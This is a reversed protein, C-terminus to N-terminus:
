RPTAREMMAALRERYRWRRRAIEIRTITHVVGLALLGLLALTISRARNALTMYVGFAGTAGLVKYLAYNGGDAIGLGLPVIAAAWGILVGVSVVGIFLTPTIGVGIAHLLLGLATWNCAKAGVVFLLGARTGPSRDTHLEKIHRDVEILRQRIATAREPKLIKLRRGADILSGVAGKQIMVAIAIVLPILIALGVWVTIQLSRPLDVLLLTLPVGLIVVAVSLYFAALNYLVISSVVRARPAHTVLMAVKTAEGLAGGPTLINIARGSSQAALVRWYSVMRAEPRMFSRIAGAECALAGVDLVVIPIAWTGIGALVDRARAWGLEEMMLALAIAGAVFVGVNFVHSWIHRSPDKDEDPKGPPASEAAAASTASGTSM